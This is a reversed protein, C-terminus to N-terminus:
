SLGLAKASFLMVHGCNDCVVPVLVIAGGASASAKAAVPAAILEAGGLDQLDAGCMPCQTTVKKDNLWAELKRQQADTLPM